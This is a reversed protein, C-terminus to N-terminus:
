LTYKKSVLPNIKKELSFGASKLLARYLPYSELDEFELLREVSREITNLWAGDLTNCIRLKGGSTVSCTFFVQFRIWKKM